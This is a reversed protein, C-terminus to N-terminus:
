VNVGAIKAQGTMFAVLKMKTNAPLGLSIFEGVLMGDGISKKIADYAPRNTKRWEGRVAAFELKLDAMLNVFELATLENYNAMENLKKLTKM